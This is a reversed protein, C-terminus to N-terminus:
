QTKKKKARFPADYRLHCPACLAKLNSPDCNSPDPIMHATTLTFRQPHALIEKELDSDAGIRQVFGQLSEKKKRCDKGCFECQWNAATRTQLSIENWNKPYLKIKMPM